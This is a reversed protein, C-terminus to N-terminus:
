MYLVVWQDFAVKWFTSGHCYVDVYGVDDAFIFIINQKM